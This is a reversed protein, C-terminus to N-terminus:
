TNSSVSELLLDNVYSSLHFSQVNLDAFHTCRKHLTRVSIGPTTSMSIQHQNGTRDSSSVGSQRTLSSNSRGTNHEQTANDCKSGRSTRNQSSGVKLAVEQNLREWMEVGLTLNLTRVFLCQNLYKEDSDVPDRNRDHRRLDDIERRDPGVRAEVMGSCEWTYTCTSPRQPDGAAKFRLCNKREQSINSLVAMGWSTTKDCGTVLRIDGNKAERGRPGNVFRYWSEVNAAAYGRFHPINELDFSIAGEPMTLM